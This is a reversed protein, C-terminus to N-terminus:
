SLINVARGAVIAITVLSTLAEMMMLVKALPTLPFTDTPSFATANTFSLFVYDIFKPTWAFKARLEESVAMQPFIFDARSPHHVFDEHARADPGHCDIEWFWLSYVLINTLWIQVAALLLQPGTFSKTRVLQDAILIGITAINFAGLVAIHAISTVRQWGREQHRHPSFIMLPILTGIVLLPLVWVPGVVLKPPLTVYLVLALLVAVAAHWRPEERVGTKM